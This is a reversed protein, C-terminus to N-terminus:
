FGYSSLDIYVTGGPIVLSIETGGTGQFEIASLSLSTLLPHLQPLSRCYSECDLTCYLGNNWNKWVVTDDIFKVYSSM